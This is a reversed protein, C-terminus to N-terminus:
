SNLYNRIIFRKSIIILFSTVVESFVGEEKMKLVAEREKSLLDTYHEIYYGVSRAMYNNKEENSVTIMKERILYDYIMVPITDFSYDKAATILEDWDEKTMERTITSSDPLMKTAISEETKSLDARNDLYPLLIDDIMTLNLAKGWDKVDIGRNRFAYEVEEQNLNRYKENLKKQFQDALINMMVENAPITWGTIVHIQLLLKTASLTRQQDNMKCFLPAAYKLEIVKHEEPLPM